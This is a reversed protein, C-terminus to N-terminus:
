NSSDNKDKEKRIESARLYCDNCSPILHANGVKHKLRMKNLKKSHWADHISVENITGLQMIKKEDHNCPIITGDVLIAMRQWLQCCSWDSILPDRKDIRPQYDLFGVEDVIETWFAVYEDIQDSLEPLLVTQVRVKPYTVGLENKLRQLRTINDVVTEFNSGVRYKEYVEKTHGEISISIRDLGAAILKRARAGNLLTANTNFYVDILGKEKAYKVFRHIEPHMLPEGIISFKVGYLGNEAGEDIIKKFMDYPMNKNQILEPNSARLCFPCKLNCRDTAEVDLFLPFQCVHFSKPYRRWKERYEKYDPNSEVINKGGVTHYEPSIKM